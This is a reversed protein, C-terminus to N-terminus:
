TLMITVIIKISGKLFDVRNIRLLPRSSGYDVIDLNIYDQKLHNGFGLNLKMNLFVKKTKFIPIGLM